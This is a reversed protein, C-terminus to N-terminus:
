NGMPQSTSIISEPNNWCGGLGIARGSHGLMHVAAWLGAPTSSLVPLNYQKETALHLHLTVVGGCSILLSDANPASRCVDSVLALM